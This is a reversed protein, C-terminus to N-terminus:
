ASRTKELKSRFVYSLALFVGFGISWVYKSADDGAALHAILASVLNIAFGAYAWEKVQAPVPLLLALVGLIKAISLELRFAYSPFGLHAFVEAVQSSALENYATFAMFLSFFSTTLWFGLRATKTNGM